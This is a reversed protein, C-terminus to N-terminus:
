NLIKFPVVKIILFLALISSLIIALFGIEISFKVVSLGVILMYIGHVFYARSDLGLKTGCEPCLLVDRPSLQLKKKPAITEKECHPCKEM